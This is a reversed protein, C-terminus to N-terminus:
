PSLLYRADCRSLVHCYQLPWEIYQHYKAPLTRAMDRTWGIIVNKRGPCKPEDSLSICFRGLLYDLLFMHIVLLRGAHSDPALFRLFEQNSLSAPFVYVVAFEKWALAYYLLSDTDTTTPACPM